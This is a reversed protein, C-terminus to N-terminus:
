SSSFNLVDQALTAELMIPNEKIWTIFHSVCKAYQALVHASRNEQRRVHCFQVRWFDWIKQFIGLIINSVIAPPENNGFIANFIILSDCEFIVDKIGIDWAFIVHEDLAIAEVEIPEFPRHFNKSLAVTVQRERDWIMAGM